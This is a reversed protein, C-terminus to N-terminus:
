RLVILKRSLAVGDVELRCFYIGGPLRGPEFREVHFGPGREGQALTAVREGPLSYVALSVVAARPLGYRISTGRVCPNPTCPALEVTPPPSGAGPPGVALSGAPNALTWLGQGQTRLTDIAPDGTASNEGTRVGPQMAWAGDLYRWARASTPQGFSRDFQAGAEGANWQLSVALDGSAGPPNVGRMLWARQLAGAAPLGSAPPADTVAVYFFDTGNSVRVTVPDYRSSGVPFLFDAFPSVSQGLRGLTDPTVVYSAASGGLIGSARLDHGALSLNGSTLTLVGNVTAASGLAATGALNLTLDAFSTVGTLLPTGTGTVVVASGAAPTFTGGNVLDISTVLKTGAALTM